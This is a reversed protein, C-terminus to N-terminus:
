HSRNSHNGYYVYTDRAVYDDDETRRPKPHSTPRIPAAHPRAPQDPKPKLEQLAPAAVHKPPEASLPKITSLTVPVIERSTHRSPLSETAYHRVVSIFVLALLASLAGMSLSTWLRSDRGLGRQKLTWEAKLRAILIRAHPQLEALKTSLRTNVSALYVADGKLRVRVQAARIRRAKLRIYALALELLGAARLKLNAGYPRTRSYTTRVRRIGVHTSSAFTRKFEASQYRERLIRRYRNLTVYKRSLILSSERLMGAIFRSLGQRRSALGRSIAGLRNRFNALLEKKRQGNVSPRDVKASHILRPGKHSPINGSPINAPIERKLQDPSPWAISPVPEASTVPKKATTVISIDGSLDSKPNIEIPPAPPSPKQPAEASSNEAPEETAQWILGHPVLPEDEDHKPKRKPFM